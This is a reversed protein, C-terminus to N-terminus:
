VTTFQINNNDYQSLKVSNQFSMNWKPSIGETAAKCITQKESKPLGSIRMKRLVPM